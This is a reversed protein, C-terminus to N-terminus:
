AKMIMLMRAAPVDSVRVASIPCSSTGTDRTSTDM